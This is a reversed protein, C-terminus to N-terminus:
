LSARLHTALATSLTKNHIMEVALPVLAFAQPHSPLALASFDLFEVPQETAGGVGAEHQRHAISRDQGVYAVADGEVGVGPQRTVRRPLQDADDRMRQITWAEVRRHAADGVAVANQLRPDADGERAGGPRQERPQIRPM